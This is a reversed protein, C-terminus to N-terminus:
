QLTVIDLFHPLIHLMAFDSLFLLICLVVGLTARVYIFWFFFALEVGGNM